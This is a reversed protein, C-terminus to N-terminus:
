SAPSSDEDQESLPFEVVVTFQDGDTKVRLKGGCAETFSRAISLGLGSGGDTRSRDGRVFRGTFDAAPDLEERSTNRISAAACGGEAELRLYVRSGPLSYQLANQILNQFVRYLRQGDALIPVPTEPLEERIRVPSQEISEAMDALTQWILKGLDLRELRVPLQGSAAKSVEFVDQVMERLRLAKSRLIRAYDMGPEPLEEGCLLDAYSLISTLPTKLDHSVNAILEVKMRESRIREEIAADMGKEVEQLNRSVAALEAEPPLAPAGTFQGARIEAIRGSLAEVEAFVKRCRGTYALFVGLLALALLVGAALCFARRLSDEGWLGALATVGCMGAALLAAGAMSFVATRRMRRAFPGRCFSEAARGALSNRWPRGCLDFVGPVATWFATLAAPLFAYLSVPEPWDWLLATFEAPVSQSLGAAARAALWVALMVGAAFFLLKGEWWFRGALKRVAAKAARRSERMCLSLALLATGAFLLGVGLWLGFFRTRHTDYLAFLVSEQGGTWSHVPEPKERVAMVIEAGDLEFPPSSALQVDWNKRYLSIKVGDFYLLLNYGEPLGAGMKNLADDTNYYTRRGDRYVDYLLNEDRWLHRFLERLFAAFSLATEQTERMLNYQEALSANGGELAALAELYVRMADQFGETEQYDPQFAEAPSAGNEACGAFHAGLPVIGALILSLGLAFAFASVAAKWKKWRTDM